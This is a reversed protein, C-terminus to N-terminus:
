NQLIDKSMMMEKRSNQATMPWRKLTPEVVHRLWCHLQLGKKIHSRNVAVEAKGDCHKHTGCSPRGENSITDPTSGHYSLVSPM